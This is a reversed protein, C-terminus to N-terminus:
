STLANSLNAALGSSAHKTTENLIAERVAARKQMLLTAKQNSKKFLEAAQKETAGGAVIMHNIFGSANAKTYRPQNLQEDSM